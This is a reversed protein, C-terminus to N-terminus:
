AAVQADTTVTVEEAALLAWAQIKVGDREANAETYEGGRPYEEVKVTLSFQEAFERVAAPDNHFYFKIIPDNPAFHAAEVNVHTPVATTESMLTEVLSLATMFSNRQMSSTDSPRTFDITM